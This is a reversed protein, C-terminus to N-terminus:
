IETEDRIILYPELGEIQKVEGSKVLDETERRRTASMLVITQNMYIIM